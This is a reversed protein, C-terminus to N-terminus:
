KKSDLLIKEIDKEKKQQNSQSQEVLSYMLKEIEKKLESVAPSYVKPIFEIVKRCMDLAKAYDGQEFYLKALLYLPYIRSPVIHYATKYSKEAHDYEELALYNNGMINYFMPDNSKEAGQRLIENSKEHEGVKYLSHGYEFLFKYDYKLISLFEEYDATDYMEMRYLVQLKQWDTLAKIHDNMMPRTGMWTAFASVSIIAFVIRGTLSGSLPKSEQAAVCVVFLVLLPVLHFPYSTFAFVLIAILGYRFPNM